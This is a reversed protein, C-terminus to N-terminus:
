GVDGGDVDKVGYRNHRQYPWLPKGCAVELRAITFASAVMKGHIIRTITSAPVGAAESFALASGFNASTTEALVNRSFDQLKRLVPDTVHGNPWSPVIRCPANAPLSAPM